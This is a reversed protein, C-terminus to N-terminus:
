ECECSASTVPLTAMINLLIRINPYFEEDAHPLAKAPTDLKSALQSENKWKHKWLHFESDFSTLTLDGEYFELLTDFSHSTSSEKAVASPLLQM